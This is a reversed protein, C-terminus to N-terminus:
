LAEWLRYIIFAWLVALVVCWLARHLGPLPDPATM